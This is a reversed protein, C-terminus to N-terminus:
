FKGYELDLNYIIWIDEENIEKMYQYKRYKAIMPIDLYEVRMMRLVLSIKKKASDENSLLTESNTIDLMRNFIFETEHQIDEDISGKFLM